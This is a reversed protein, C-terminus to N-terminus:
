DKNSFITASERAKESNSESGEEEGMMIKSNLLQLEETGVFSPPGV